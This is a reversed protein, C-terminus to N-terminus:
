KPRHIECIVENEHMSITVTYNWRRGSNDVKWLVYGDNPDITNRAFYFEKHGEPYTHRFRVPRMEISGKGGKILAKKTYLLVVEETLPLSTQVDFVYKQVRFQYYLLALISASTLLWLLVGVMLISLLFRKMANKRGVTV